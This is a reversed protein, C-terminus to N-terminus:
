EKEKKANLQLLAFDGNKPDLIAFNQSKTNQCVFNFSILGTDGRVGTCM